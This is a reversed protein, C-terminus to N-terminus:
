SLLDIVVSINEEILSCIKSIEQIESVTLDGNEFEPKYKVIYHEEFSSLDQKYIREKSVEIVSHFGEYISFTVSDDYITVQLDNFGKELINKKIYAILDSINNAKM